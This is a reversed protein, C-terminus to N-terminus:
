EELKGWVKSFSESPMPIRQEKPLWGADKARYVGQNIIDGVFEAKILDDRMKDAMIAAQDDLKKNNSINSKLSLAYDFFAESLKIAEKSDSHTQGPISKIMIPYNLEKCKQYFKLSALNGGDKEGTTIMWLLDSASKDPIDYSNPVHFHAAQFWSPNRLVLRHGWHSGRSIGYIFYGSSPLKYKTSLRKMGKRWASAVEDFRNDMKRALKKELEDESTGSKWLTVTNWTVVAFHHKEAWNVLDSKFSQHRLLGLMAEESHQWTAICMVGKLPKGELFSSPMRLYMNLHPQEKVHTEVSIKHVDNLKDGKELSLANAWTSLLSREPLWTTNDREAAKSTQRIEEKSFLDIELGRSDPREFARLIYSKIMKEVPVQNKESNYIFSVRRGDRRNQVNAELMTSLHKKNSCILLRMPQRHPKKPALWYTNEEIWFSPKMKKKKIQDLHNHANVFGFKKVRPFLKKVEKLLQKEILEMAKQPNRLHLPKTKKGNKDKLGKKFGYELSILGIENEAAFQKWSEELFVKKLDYRGGFFIVVEQVNRNKKPSLSRVIFKSYWDNPEYIIEGTVASPLEQAKAFTFCFFVLSLTLIHQITKM